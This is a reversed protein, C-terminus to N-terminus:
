TRPTKIKATFNQKYFYFLWLTLVAIMMCSLIFWLNQNTVPVSKLLFPGRHFSLLQHLPSFKWELYIRDNIFIDIGKSQYSWKMIHYQSFIEGICFYLQQLVAAMLAGGFIWFSPKDKQIVIREKFWFAAPILLFPILMMLYRPGHSFGGHWYQYSTAIFLTFGSMAILMKSLWPYKQYFFSWTFIGLIVAPCFLFLGKGFGILQGYLNRWFLFNTPWVWDVPNFESLGRGTELVNGFRFYNYYGLLGAFILYGSVWVLFRSKHKPTIHRAYFALFPVLLASNSHTVLALGLIAGSFLFHISKSTDKEVLCKPDSRVLFYFSSLIYMLTLPESFFTGAYSWILTGFAYLLSIFFATTRSQTLINLVNFFILVGLTTTLINFISCVFRLAHPELETVTRKYYINIFGDQVYHSLPPTLADFWRTQNVWRGVVVFPVLALSEGPPYVSYLISDRGRAVAFGKWNELDSKVGFGNVDALNEAVRFVVEADPARIGGYDTLAYLCLCCVVLILRPRQIM